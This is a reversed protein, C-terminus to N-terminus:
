QVEPHRRQANDDMEAYGAGAQQVADAAEILRAAHAHAERSRADVARQWQRYLGQGLEGLRGPGDGFATAGPDLVRLHAGTDDLQDTASRLAAVASSLDSM